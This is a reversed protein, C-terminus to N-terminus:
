STIKGYYAKVPIGGNSFQIGPQLNLRTQRALEADNTLFLIEWSIFKKRLVNGLQAYLNRLDTGSSVRGGYPPNTIIWGNTQPPEIASVAQQKLEIWESSGARHANNASIQIAGADRDSAQIFAGPGSKSLEKAQIRLQSLLSKNFNDWNEFAFSRQYAPPIQRAMLSAEIPITGSGCFPDILPREHTWGSSLLLAAALNERLPAINIEQRYGRQYLPLGSSDLSVTVRDNVLRVVILQVNTQQDEDVSTKVLKVRAGIRTEISQHIRQSVADSHYLKSKKCTTRIQISSKGDLFNEWPIKKAKKELEAFHNAYFSDLRMLIRNPTRLWLNLKYLLELDGELELAEDGPGHELNIQSTPLLLKLEKFTQDEIGPPVVLFFKSM